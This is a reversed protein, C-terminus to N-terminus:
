KAPEPQPQPEPEPEPEPEPATLQHIKARAKELWSKTTEKTKQWFGKSEEATEVAVEESVEVTKEAVEASKEKTKDWTEATKEKTKRWAEGSANGVAEAAESIEKGATKWKGPEEAAWGLSSMCILCGLIVVVKLSVNNNSEMQRSWEPGQNKNLADNKYLWGNNESCRLHM